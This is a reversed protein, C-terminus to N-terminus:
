AAEPRGDSRGYEDELRVVDDLHPTSAEFFICDKIAHLRHVTGPKIRFAQGPWITERGLPGDRPGIVIEALGDDLYITEDKREHYQLSLSHGSRVFLLKGCYTETLAYILEFGWPKKVRTVARTYTRLGVQDDLITESM